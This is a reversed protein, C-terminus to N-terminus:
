QNGRPGVELGVEAAREARRIEEALEPSMRELKRRQRPTLGRAAAAINEVLLMLAKLNDEDKFHDVLAALPREAEFAASLERAAAAARTRAERDEADGTFIPDYVASGARHTSIEGPTPKLTEAARTGWPRDIRGIVPRPKAVDADFGPSPMTSIRSMYESFSEGAEQVPMFAPPAIPGPTGVPPVPVAPSPGKGKASFSKLSEADRRAAYALYQERAKTQLQSLAANRNPVNVVRLRSYLFELGEEHLNESGGFRRRIEGPLGTARPQDDRQPGMTNHKTM